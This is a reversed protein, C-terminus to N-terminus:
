PCRMDSAQDRVPFEDGGSDGSASPSRDVGQVRGESGAARKSGRLMSATTIGARPHHGGSKRLHQNRIASPVLPKKGETTAALDEGANRTLAGRPSSIDVSKAVAGKRGPSSTNRRKMHPSQSAVPHRLPLGNDEADKASCLPSENSGPFACGPVTIATVPFSRAPHSSAGLVEM